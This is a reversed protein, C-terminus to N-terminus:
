NNKLSHTNLFSFFSVHFIKNPFLSFKGTLTLQKWKRLVSIQLSIYLFLVHSDYTVMYCLAWCGATQYLMSCVESTQIFCEVRLDLPSKGGGETHMGQTRCFLAYMFVCLVAFPPNTRQPEIWAAMMNSRMETLCFRPDTDLLAITEADTLGGNSYTTFM